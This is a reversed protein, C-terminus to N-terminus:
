VIDDRSETPLMDAGALGRLLEIEISSVILVDVEFFGVAWFFV